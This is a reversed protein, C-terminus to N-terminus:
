QRGAACRESELAPFTRCSSDKKKKTVTVSQWPRLSSSAAAAVAERQNRSFYTVVEVHNKKGERYLSINTKEFIIRAYNSFILLFFFLLSLLWTSNHPAVNGLAFDDDSMRTRPSSSPAAAAQLGRHLESPRIFRRAATRPADCNVALREDAVM